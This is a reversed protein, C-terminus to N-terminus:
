STQHNILDGRFSFLGWLLIFIRISVKYNTMDANQIKDPLISVDLVMKFM